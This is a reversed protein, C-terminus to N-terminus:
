RSHEPHSDWKGGTPRMWEPLTEPTAGVFSVKVPFVRLVLDNREETVLDRVLEQMRERNKVVELDTTDFVLGAHDGTDPDNYYIHTKTYLRM